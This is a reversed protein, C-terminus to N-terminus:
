QSMRACAQVLAAATDDSHPDSRALERVAAVVVAARAPLDLVPWPDGHPLAPGGASRYREVFTSWVDDDLLGAAWFGAPRGLDWATDGVGLDDVDLLRWGDCPDAADPQTLRGLQGLHWDGHALRRPAAGDGRAARVGSGTSARALDDLVRQAAATVVRISGTRTAGGTDLRRLRALARDLRAPGGHDPLRAAAGGLRSVDARHLGALLRAAVAWIREATDPDPDAGPDLVDVRPWCTVLRGDPACTVEATSPALLYAACGGGASFRVRARLALPDTRPHHVKIVIDDLVLLEAGSPTVIM